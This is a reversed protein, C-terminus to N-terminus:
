LVQICTATDRMGGAEYYQAVVRYMVYFSIFVILLSDESTDFTIDFTFFTLLPRNTNREWEAILQSLLITHIRIQSMQDRSDIQFSM